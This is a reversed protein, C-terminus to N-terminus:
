GTPLFRDFVCDSLVPTNYHYVWRAQIDRKHDPVIPPVHVAIHPSLLPSHGAHYLTPQSPYYFQSGPPRPPAAYDYFMGHQLALM